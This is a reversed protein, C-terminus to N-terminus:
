SIYVHIINIYIKYNSVYTMNNYMSEEHETIAIKVKIVTPINKDIGCIKVMTDLFLRISRWFADDDQLINIPVLTDIIISGKYIAVIKYTTLKNILDIYNKVAEIIVHEEGKLPEPTEITFHVKFYSTETSFSFFINVM